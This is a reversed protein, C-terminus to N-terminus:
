VARLTKQLYTLFHNGRFYIRSAQAQKVAQLLGAATFHKRLAALLAPFCAADVKRDESFLGFGFEDSKNIIANLLKAKDAEAMPDLYQLIIGFPTYSDIADIMKKYSKEGDLLRFYFGTAAKNYNHSANKAKTIIKTRWKRKEEGEPMRESLFRYDDYDFTFPLLQALVDALAAENKKITYIKKLLVLYPVNYVDKVNEAIQAQCQKEASDLHAKEILGEILMQNFANDFRIPKFLTYYHDLLGSQQVLEFFTKTYLAGNSLRDPSASSYQTALADVLVKRRADSSLAIINKLHLFYHMRIGKTGDPIYKKFYGTATYFAADDYLAAINEATGNLLQGIYKELRNSGTNIRSAFARCSEPVAHFAAFAKENTPDSLYYAVVSAHLGAWLDVIKKLESTEVRLRAKVVAKIADATLQQVEGPTYATKRADFRQVFALALDKNQLLREALWAKLEAADADALLVEAKTKKAKAIKDPKAKKTGAIALLLAAKHKCFSAKTKCDCHHEVIEKSDAVTLSVDFTEGGEDVYAVFVGKGTEDCERVTCRAAEKLLPQSLATTFNALSLVM